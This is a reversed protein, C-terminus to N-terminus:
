RLGFLLVVEAKATRVRRFQALAPRSIQPKSAALTKIGLGGSKAIRGDHSAMAVVAAPFPLIVARGAAGVDARL